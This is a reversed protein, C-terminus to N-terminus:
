KNFDIRGGGGFPAPKLNEPLEVMEFEPYQGPMVAEPHAAESGLETTLMGAPSTIEEIKELKETM